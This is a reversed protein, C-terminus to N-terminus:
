EGILFRANRRVEDADERWQSDSQDFCDLQEICARLTDVLEPVMNAAQWIEREVIDDATGAEMMAAIQDIRDQSIPSGGGTSKRVPRPEAQCEFASVDIKNGHRVFAGDSFATDYAEDPSAARIRYTEPGTVMYTVLYPRTRASKHKKM